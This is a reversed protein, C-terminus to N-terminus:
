LNKKFKKNNMIIINIQDALNIELKHIKSLYYYPNRPATMILEAMSDKIYNLETNKETIQKTLDSSTTTIEKVLSEESLFCEDLEIQKGKLKLISESCSQYLDLKRKLEDDFAVSNEENLM